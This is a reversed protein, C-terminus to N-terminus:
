QRVYHPDGTLQLAVKGGAAPLARVNGTMNTVTLSPASVPLSISHPPGTTWLVQRTAAGDTFLLAYDTDSALPIRHLLRFGSLERTLTQAALYAPTSQGTWTLLGFNNNMQRLDAGDDQWDYWISVPLGNLLNILALRVFCAAQEERSVWTLSYGWETNIIPLDVKKEPAYRAILTRLRRYDATASEPAGLRYPHVSIADALDLLGLSFCRALFDWAVQYQPQLGTLAPLVITAGPDSGRITPVVLKALTMYEAPSAAPEWFHVNDPENWIEWIIGRGRFNVAAAAAFRAFSQRAEDTHLGAVTSPPSSAHEYLANDYGLLFLPRVGHALLTDVIPEYTSFDYYGRRREVQDWLLDLRAFRFGVRALQAIQAHTTSTLHLNVGLGAPLVLAPLGPTSAPRTSVVPPEDCGALAASGLGAAVVGARLFARRTLRSANAHGTIM